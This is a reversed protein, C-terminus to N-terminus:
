SCMDSVLPLETRSGAEGELRFRILFTLILLLGIVLVLEAKKHQYFCKTPSYISKAVSILSSVLAFICLFLM